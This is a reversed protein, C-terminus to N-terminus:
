GCEMKTAGSLLKKEDVNKDVFLQTAQWITRYM